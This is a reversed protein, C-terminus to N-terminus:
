SLATGTAIYLQSLEHTHLYIVTVVGSLILEAPTETGKERQTLSSLFGDNEKEEKFPTTGPSAQSIPMEFTDYIVDMVEKVEPPGNDVDDSQRKRIQNLHRKHTFQPGKIIYIM